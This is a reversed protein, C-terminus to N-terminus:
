VVALKLLNNWLAILWIYRFRQLGFLTFRLVLYAGELFILPALAPLLRRLDRQGYSTAIWDALLIVLVSALLALLGKVVLVKRILPRLTGGLRRADIEAVFRELYAEINTTLVGALGVAAQGISLVGYTAPGLMRLVIMAYLFGGITATIQELGLYFSDALPRSAHRQAIPGAKREDREVKRGDNGAIPHAHTTGSFVPGVDRLHLPDQLSGRPLDEATEIEQEVIGSGARGGQGQLVQGVFM